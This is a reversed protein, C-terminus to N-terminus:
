CINGSPAVATMVPPPCPMPAATAVDRFLSREPALDPYAANTHKAKAKRPKKASRRSKLDEPNDARSARREELPIAPEPSPPDNAGDGAAGSRGLGYAM